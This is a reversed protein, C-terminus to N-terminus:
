NQLAHVIEASDNPFSTITLKDIVKPTGFFYNVPYPISALKSKTETWGDVIQKCEDDDSDLIIANLQQDQGDLSVKTNYINTPYIFLVWSGGTKNEPIGDPLYQKMYKFLISNSESDSTGAYANGMLGDRALSFMKTSEIAYGDKGIIMYAIPQYAKSIETLFSEDQCMMTLANNMSERNNKDTNVKSQGVYVFIGIISVGVLIAIIVIVVILETLTFGKNKKNKDIM